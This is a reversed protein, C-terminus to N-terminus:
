RRQTKRREIEVRVGEQYRTPVLIIGEKAELTRLGLEVLDAYIKIM